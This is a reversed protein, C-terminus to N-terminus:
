WSARPFKKSPKKTKVAVNKRYPVANTENWHFLELNEKRLAESLTTRAEDDMNIIFKATKDIKTPSFIKNRPVSPNFVSDFGPTIVRVQLHRDISIEAPPEELIFNLSKAIAPLFRMDFTADIDKRWNSASHEMIVFVWQFVLCIQEINMNDHSFGHSSLFVLQDPSRFASSAMLKKTKSLKAQFAQTENRSSVIRRSPAVSIKNPMSIKYKGYSAQLKGTPM